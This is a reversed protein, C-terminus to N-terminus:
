DFFGPDLNILASQLLRPGGLLLPDNLQKILRGASVSNDGHDITM